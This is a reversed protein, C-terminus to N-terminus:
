RGFRAMVLGIVLPAVVVTLLLARIMTGFSGQFISFNFSLVTALSTIFNWGGTLWAVFVNSAEAEPTVAVATQSIGQAAAKADTDLWVGDMWGGVFAVVFYIVLVSAILKVM